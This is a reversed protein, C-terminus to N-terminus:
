RAQTRSAALRAAIRGGLVVAVAMAAAWPLVFTPSYGAESVLSEILAPAIILVALVALRRHASRFLGHGRGVAILGIALAGATVSIMQVVIYVLRAAMAPASEFALAFEHAASRAVSEQWVLMGALAVLITAVSLADATFGSRGLRCRLLPLASALAQRWYWSRAERLGRTARIQFSEEMDGLVVERDPRGTSASMLAYALSPPHILENEATDAM